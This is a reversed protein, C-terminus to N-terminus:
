NALPMSRERDEGARTGAPLGGATALQAVSLIIAGRGAAPSGNTVGSDSLVDWPIAAHGSFSRSLSLNNLRAGGGHSPRSVDRSVGFTHVPFPVVISM